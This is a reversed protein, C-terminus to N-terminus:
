MYLLFQAPPSFGVYSLADMDAMNPKVKQGTPSQFIESWIYIYIYIYIYPAWQSVCVCIADFGRWIVDASKNKKKWAGFGEIYYVMQIKITYFLYTVNNWAHTSYYLVSSTVAHLSCCDRWQVEDWTTSKQEKCTTVDDTDIVLVCVREWAWPLINLWNRCNRTRGFKWEHRQLETFVCFINGMEQLYNSNVEYVALDIGAYPIIGILSPFLGRYFSRVGETRLIVRGADQIGKFQGTKALALRTKLVQFLLTM